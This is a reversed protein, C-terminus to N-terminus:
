RGLVIEVLKSVSQATSYRSSSLGPYQRAREVDRVLNLSNQSVSYVNGTKTHYRALYEQEPHNPTPIFLVKDKGLEILDMLTSYGPRSIVMKARNMVQDREPSRIYNVVRVDGWWKSEGQGEDPKGLVIVVKGKIERVQELINKEFSSRQPEAGSISIFYDIDQETDLKKFDSLIGIYRIKKEDIFRFDRSLNGSLPSGEYDPVLILDFKNIFLSALWENFRQTYRDQWFWPLKLAHCVLYSPVKPNYAGYCTDSIILEYNGSSIIQDVRQHEASILRLLKFIEFPGKPMLLIWHYDRGWNTNYDPVDLYHYQDGIEKKLLKLARGTSAITVRCGDDILRRIVPLNRTAHGLGWSNVKYFINKM